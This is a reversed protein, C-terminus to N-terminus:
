KKKLSIKEVGPVVNYMVFTGGDDKRVSVTESEESRTIKVEKWAPDVYTKVTLPLDFLGKDLPHDITVVIEDGKDGVRYTVLTTLREKVYRAADGYTAVWLRDRMSAIHSFYAEMDDSTMAEWGVGDIGHHVPVLWVNDHAVATDVWGKLQDLTTRTYVTQRMQVYEKEPDPLSAWGPQLAEMTSRFWSRSRAVPFVKVMYSTAREDNTDYPMEGVLTSREGLQNRIESRGAELEYMINPANLASMYPHSVMHSSFEHGRATLERAEDWTLAGERYISETELGISSPAAELEGANFKTYFNGVMEVAQPLRGADIQSGVRISLDFAGKAPLFRMASTREFVNGTDTPITKAEEAIEQWSRGIHKATFTSGPLNSTNIYFTGPLGLKDMIPVAVRFQNLTGDDYTISVAARKDDPWTTISTDGIKQAQAGFLTASLVITAFIKKM